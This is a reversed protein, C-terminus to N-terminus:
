TPGTSRRTCACRRASPRSRTTPSARTSRSRSTATAGPAPTGSRPPVPRLRRRIDQEALAWFSEEVSRGAPRARRAARRLRRGAAMAKEFITPNSTAGVVSDDDILEQLHGGRISERSLFDIWVSQGLASLRQLPQSADSPMADGQTTENCCRGRARPSTRSPSASSRSCPRARRRPASATSASCTAAHQRGVEVLEDERGARGGAAGHGGRAAGARPLGRGASRVAGHLADLRCALATGEEALAKAATLTPAVEAGTSILILEPEGGPPTGCCTAAACCARRPPSRTATSRRRREPALAAARGPRGRARARGALGARDRERRGPPDGVPAPDRAAGRLARDAPADPRGRRPGVSDHTWVWVVPLGMLASLRVAGRMYDSFILFTSGYPKVIGGHAAAGNVIAGM